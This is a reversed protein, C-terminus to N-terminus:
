MSANPIRISRDDDGSLILGSTPFDDAPKPQQPQNNKGNHELTRSQPVPPLDEIMSNDQTRTATIVLNSQRVLEALVTVAHQDSQKRAGHASGALWAAAAVVAIALLSVIVTVFVTEVM